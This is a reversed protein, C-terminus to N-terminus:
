RQVTKREARVANDVTGTSIIEAEVDPSTGDVLMPTVPVGALHPAATTTNQCRQVGTLVLNGGSTSAGAYSIEEGEIDLTAADLFKSHAVIQISALPNCNSALATVLTTVPYARDGRTHANATSPVGGIPQGRTVGTFAPLNGCAPLSATTGTYKAYEGSILDDDLQLSGTTPFRAVTYVCVVNAANTINRRLKTAPVNASITFSGAGVNKTTLDFPDASSRYWDLNQALGRTELELGSEAVFLAQGSQLNDAASGASTGAIMAITVALAAAVVLLVIAAILMFGGRRSPRDM